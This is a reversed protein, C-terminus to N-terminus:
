LIISRKSVIKCSADFLIISYSKIELIENTENICVIICSSKNTHFRTVQLRAFIILNIIVIVWLFHTQLM